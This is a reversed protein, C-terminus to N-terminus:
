YLELMGSKYVITGDQLRGIPELSDPDVIYTTGTRLCRKAVYHSADIEEKTEPLTRKM